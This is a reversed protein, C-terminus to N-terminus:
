KLITLFVNLMSALFVIVSALFIWISYRRMNKLQITLPRVIDELEIQISEVTKTAGQEIAQDMAEKSATLAVTLIREAKGKAEIEWRAMVEELEAKFESLIEKQGAQSDEILRSNITTLILIPDNKGITVGHKVAVEEIINEINGSM